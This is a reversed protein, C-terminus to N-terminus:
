LAQKVHLLDATRTRGHRGNSEAATAAESPSPRRCRGLRISTRVYFGSTLLRAMALQIRVLVSMEFQASKWRKVELKQSRVELKDIDEM